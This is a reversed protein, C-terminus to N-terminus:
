FFDPPGPYDEDPPPPPFEEPDPDEFLSATHGAPVRQPEPEPELDNDECIQSLIAQACTHCRNTQHHRTPQGCDQCSPHQSTDKM